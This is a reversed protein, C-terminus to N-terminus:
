CTIKHYSATAAFCKGVDITELLPFETRDATCRDIDPPGTMVKFYFIEPDCFVDNRLELLMDMFGPFMVKRM